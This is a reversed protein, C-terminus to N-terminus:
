EGTEQRGSYNDVKLVQMPLSVLRATQKRNFVAVAEQVQKAIGKDATWQWGNNNPIGVTARKGDRSIAFGRSLGLYLVDMEKKAGNDTPLVEKTVHINHQLNEIQIYLAIVLQLRRLVSIRRTQEHTTPLQQFANKLPAALSHPIIHEWKRLEAEARDLVPPFQALVVDRNEKLAIQKVQEKIFSAENANAEAIEKELAAKEKKYLEIEEQWHIEQEKWGRKEAAIQSRIDVWKAVLGELTVVSPTPENTDTAACQCAVVMVLSCVILMKM